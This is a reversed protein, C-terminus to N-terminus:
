PTLPNLADRFADLALVTSFLLDYSALADPQAVAIAARLISNYRTLYVALRHIDQTFSPVYTKAM